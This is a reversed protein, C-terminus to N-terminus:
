PYLNHNCEQNLHDMHNILSERLNTLPLIKKILMRAIDNKDKKIAVALDQELKDIERDHRAGEQRAQDRAATVQGLRSEKRALADEMDRLYQRLLLGRDELQDMVGHIDAKFIKVFRNLIGM